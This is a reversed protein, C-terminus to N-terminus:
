FHLSESSRLYIAGAKSVTMLEIGQMNPPPTLRDATQKNIIDISEVWRFVKTQNEFNQQEM